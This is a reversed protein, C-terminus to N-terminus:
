IISRSLPSFAAMITIQYSSALLLRREWGDHHFHFLYNSREQAMRKHCLSQLRNRLCKILVILGEGSSISM